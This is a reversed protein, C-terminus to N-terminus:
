AGNDSTKNENEAELYYWWLALEIQKQREAQLRLAEAAQERIEAKHFNYEDSLICGEIYDNEEEDEHGAIIEKLDEETLEPSEYGHDCQLCGCRPCEYHYGSGLQEDDMMLETLQGGCEPCLETGRIFTKM